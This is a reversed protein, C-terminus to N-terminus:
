WRGGGDKGPEDAASRANKRRSLFGELIISAAAADITNKRKKGRTDTANMYQAAEKTTNREDWLEVAIDPLAEALMQAVKRCKQAREGESGDMNKPLGVVVMAAGQERAACVVKEVTKKLNKESIVGLPSALFETRDCIALGTRADGYDVAMIKM